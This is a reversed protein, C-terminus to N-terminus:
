ATTVAVLLKAQFSSGSQESLLQFQYANLHDVATKSCITWIYRVYAVFISNLQRSPTLKLRDCLLKEVM